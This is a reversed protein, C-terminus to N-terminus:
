SVLDHPTALARRVPLTSHPDSLNQLICARPKLGPWCKPFRVRKGLAEAVESTVKKGINVRNYNIFIIDVYRLFCFVFQQFRRRCENEYIGQQATDPVARAELCQEAVENLVEQHGCDQVRREPHRGHLRSSVRDPLFHPLFKISGLLTSTSPSSGLLYLRSFSKWAIAFMHEGLGARRTTWPTTLSHSARNGPPIDWPVRLSSARGLPDYPPTKPGTSASCWPWGGPRKRYLPSEWDPWVYRLANMHLTKPSKKRWIRSSRPIHIASCCRTVTVNRSQVPSLFHRQGSLVSCPTALSARRSHQGVKEQQAGNKTRRM